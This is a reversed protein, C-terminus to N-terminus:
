SYNLKVVDQMKKFYHLFVISCLVSFKANYDKVFIVYEIEDSDILHYYFQFIHNCLFMREYCRQCINWKSQNTSIFVEHTLPNRINQCLRCFLKMASKQYIMTKSPDTQHLAIIKDISLRCEKNFQKIENQIRTDGRKRFKCSRHIISQFVLQCCYYFNFKFFFFSFFFFFIIMCFDKRKEDYELIHKLLVIDKPFDMKLTDDIKSIIFGVHQLIKNIDGRLLYERMNKYDKLHSLLTDSFQSYEIKQGIYLDKNNLENFLEEFFSGFINNYKEPFCKPQSYSERLHDFIDFKFVCWTFLQDIEELLPHRSSVNLEEM